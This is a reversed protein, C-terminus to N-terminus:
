ANGDLKLKDSVKVTIVEAVSLRVANRVHGGTNTSVNKFIPITTSYWLINNIPSWVFSQTSNWM